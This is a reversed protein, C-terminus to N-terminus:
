SLMLSRFWMPKWKGSAPFYLKERFLPQFICFCRLLRRICKQFLQKLVLTGSVVIGSVVTGSVIESIVAESVATIVDSSVAKVSSIAAESVADCVVRVSVVVPAAVESFVVAAGSLVPM